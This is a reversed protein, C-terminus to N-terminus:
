YQNWLQDYINTSAHDSPIGLNAGSIDLYSAQFTDTYLWSRQIVTKNFVGSLQESAFCVHLFTSVLDNENLSPERADLQWDASAAVYDEAQQTSTVQSSYM